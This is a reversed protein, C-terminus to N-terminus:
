IWGYPYPVCLTELAAMLKASVCACEPEKELVIGNMDGIEHVVCCQQPKEKVRAELYARKYDDFPGAIIRV